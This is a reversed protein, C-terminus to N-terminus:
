SVAKKQAVQRLTKTKKNKKKCVRNDTSAQNGTLGIFANDKLELSQCPLQLPKEIAWFLGEGQWSDKHSLMAEQSTVGVHVAVPKSTVVM